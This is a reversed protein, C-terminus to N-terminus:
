TKQGEWFPYYNFWQLPYQQLINATQRAFQQALASVDEEHIRSKTAYFQYNFPKKKMAYVFSYPVKFKRVLEFVGTPFPAKKGMFDVLVTKSGKLFRDGHICIIERNRLARHLEFIHSYDERIVIYNLLDPQQVQKLYSKIHQHEGDFIVINIRPNNELRKLFHGAIGWNGLHGSILIAGKGQDIMDQLHNEGNFQYTFRSAYGAMVAVKDILVQGFFYFNQYISLVAKPWPYKLIHRFFFFNSRTAQPAFFVFYLAVFRLVFYALGIGLHRLVFVFIRHGLLGGRTKGTWSAM